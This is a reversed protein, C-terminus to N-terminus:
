RLKLKSGLRFTTCLCITSMLHRGAVNNVNFILNNPFHQSVLFTYEEERCLILPLAKVRQMTIYRHTFRLKREVMVSVSLPRSATTATLARILIAPVSLHTGSRGGSTVERKSPKSHTM